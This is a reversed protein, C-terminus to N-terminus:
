QRSIFTRLIEWIIPIFEDYKLTYITEGNDMVEEVISLDEVSLGTHDLFDHVKNASFGIHLKDGDINKYRYTIPEIELLMALINGRGMLNVLPNIDEKRREDSTIAVSGAANYVQQKFRTVMNVNFGEQDCKEGLSLGRGTEHLEMIVYGISLNEERYITGFDDTATLRIIYANYADDIPIIFSGSVDGTSNAPTVYPFDTYESVGSKRYQVSIRIAPSSVSTGAAVAAKVRNSKVTYKVICNKGEDADIWNSLTTGTGRGLNLVSITPVGSLDDTNFSKTKSVARGRSDTVTVTISQNNTVFPTRGEVIISKDAQRVINAGELTVTESGFNVDVKALTASYIKSENLTIIVKPKDTGIIFGLGTSSLDIDLGYKVSTPVALKVSYNKQGIMETHAEDYTRVNVYATTATTNPIKDCIAMEPTFKVVKNKNSKVIEKRYVVTGASNKFYLIIDTAKNELSEHTVTIETSGITVSSPSVTVVAINNKKEISPAAVTCKCVIKSCTNTENYGTLDFTVDLKGEDDYNLTTSKTITKLWTSTMACMDAFTGKNGNIDLNLHLTNNSGVYDTRRFYAAAHVQVTRKNLDPADFLILLKVRYGTNTYQQSGSGNYTYGDTYAYYVNSSLETKIPTTGVSASGVTNKFDAGLTSVPGVSYVTSYAM